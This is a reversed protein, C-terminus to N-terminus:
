KVPILCPSDVWHTSYDIKAFFIPEITRLQVCVLTDRLLYGVQQLKRSLVGEGFDYQRKFTRWIGPLM